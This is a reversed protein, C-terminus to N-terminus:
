EDLIVIDGSNDDDGFFGGILKGIGYGVVGAVVAVGVGIAVKEVLSLDSETPEKKTVEGNTADKVAAATENYNDKATSLEDQTNESKVNVEMTNELSKKTQEKIAIATAVDDDMNVYNDRECHTILSAIFKSFEILKETDHELISNQIKSALKLWGDGDNLVMEVYPQLPNTTDERIIKAETIAEILSNYRFSLQQLDISTGNNKPTEILENYKLLIDVYISVFKKKLTPNTKVKVEEENHVM